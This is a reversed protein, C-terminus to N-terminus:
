WFVNPVVFQTTSALSIQLGLTLSLGRLPPTIDLSFFSPASHRNEQVTTHAGHCHHM